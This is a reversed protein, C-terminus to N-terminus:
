TQTGECANRAIPNALVDNSVVNGLVDVEGEFYEEHLLTGIRICEGGLVRIAEDRAAVAERLTEITTAARGLVENRYEDREPNMSDEHRLRQVIDPTPTNM